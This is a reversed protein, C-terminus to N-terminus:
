PSNVFTSPTSDLLLPISKRLSDLHETQFSPDQIKESLSLPVALPSDHAVGSVLNNKVFAVFISIQVSYTLRKPYFTAHCLCPFLFITPYPLHMQCLFLWELQMLTYFVAEYNQSESKLRKQM